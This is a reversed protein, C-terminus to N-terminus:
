ASERVDITVTQWDQRSPNVRNVRTKEGDGDRLLECTTTATRRNRFGSRHERNGGYETAKTEPGEASTTLPLDASGGWVNLYFSRAPEAPEKKQGCWVGRAVSMGSWLCGWPGAKWCQM